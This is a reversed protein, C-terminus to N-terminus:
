AVTKCVALPRLTATKKRQHTEMRRLIGDLLHMADLVYPGKNLMVCEAREAMAADTIEARTPLGKRSLRDLVQTAWIVPVHAAECLWLMEEQIEALREYGCEVAMDGRAIMVGVPRSGLAQLLLSPLEAFARRTEIKLVVGVSGADLRQLEAELEAVDEPRQAFSLAVVDGLRAAEILDERDRATLAALRLGSDPLNIGRDARLMSGKARAQTIRVRAGAADVGEIRGHIKGDDFFVRDGTRIDDLVEPLSCAIRAPQVQDGDHRAARGLEPARTLVLLDAARLVLEEACPGTRLKPGGLDLQVRVPRRQEASARRVHAAMREWADADDHACNIRAVDMGAAVLATVLTADGAAESPLTVMIRVARGAPQPGLLAVTNVELIDHGEDFTPGRLDLADVPRGALAALARRVAEITALVHPEARGLSSLGLRSLDEQLPRVDRRRLALYHLFNRLSAARRPPRADVLASSRRVADLMEARLTEVQAACREVREQDLRDLTM